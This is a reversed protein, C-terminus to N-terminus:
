ERKTPKTFDGKAWKEQLELYKEQPECTLWDINNEKCVKCHFLLGVLPHLVIFLLGWHGFWHVLTTSVGVYFIFKGPIKWKPRVFRGAHFYGLMWILAAFIAYGIEINDM